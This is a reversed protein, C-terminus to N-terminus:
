KRRIIKKIRQFIYRTQKRYAISFIVCCMLLILVEKYNSLVNVKTSIAFYIKALITVICASLISRYTNNTESLIEIKKDKKSANIYDDYEAFQVLRIKKYLPEVIVSGFRSIIMGIFYYIFLDEIVNGQIITVSLCSEFLFGLVVGPLLNNLINYSNLKEVLSEM